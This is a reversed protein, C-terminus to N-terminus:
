LYQFIYDSIKFGKGTLFLSSDTLKMDGSDVWRSSVKLLRQLEASGFMDEYEKLSIGGRTRLRTFITEEIREEASLSEQMYFPSYDHRGDRYDFRSLYAKLNSPNNQRISTGDFSCASPGIGLYPKGAWYGSNHRSEFGPLAFNSIEYRDYGAKALSDVILDEALLYEDEDVERFAGRDRLLSLPTGAEYTLAYASVHNAGLAVVSSLTQELSEIPQGPIGYIIDVSINAFEKRLAEFALVAKSASHRRRLFKLVDDNLSQVGMSIRNVGGAKWAAINEPTVDEPNVELTAEINKDLLISNLSIINFIEENFRIFDKAPILSPTGGGFYVSSLSRGQLQSIRESLENAAAKLYKNWDPNGGSYFDCYICKGKCFPIHIYLM